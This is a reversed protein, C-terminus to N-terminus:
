KAWKFRVNKILWFIKNENNLCDFWNFNFNNVWIFVILDDNRREKFYEIWNNGNLWDNWKVLGGQLLDALLKLKIIEELGNGGLSHNLSLSNENCYDLIRKKM